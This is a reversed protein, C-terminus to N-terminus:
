TRHSSNLRTSKRDVKNKFEETETYFDVGYKKRNNEKIKELAGPVEMSNTTGHKEMMSRNTNDKNYKKVCLNNMCTGYYNVPNTPKLGYRDISFKPKKAFM